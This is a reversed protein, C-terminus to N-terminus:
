TMACRAEALAGVGHLVHMREVIHHTEAVAHRELEAALGDLQDVDVIRVIGAVDRHPQRLAADHMGAEDAIDVPMGVDPGVVAM